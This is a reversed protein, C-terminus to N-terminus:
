IIMHFLLCGGSGNWLRKNHYLKVLKEDNFLNIMKLEDKPQDSSHKFDWLFKYNEINTDIYSNIFVSDHIIIAKSFLKNHIYYYYPLLEGRGKYESNIVTTKYLTKNTIFKYNSNDDIIIIQTEPYYKRICNYCYLWYKDHKECNVHRLVIFGLNDIHIKINNQKNNKINNQKNNIIIYKQKNRKINCTLFSSNNLM